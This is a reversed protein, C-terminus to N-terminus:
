GSSSCAEGLCRTILEPTGVSPQQLSLPVPPHELCTSPIPFGYCLTLSHKAKGFDALIEIPCGILVSTPQSASLLLLWRGLPVM